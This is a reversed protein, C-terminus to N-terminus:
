RDSGAARGADCAPRVKNTRQWSAEGDSKAGERHVVKAGSWYLAHTAFTRTIQGLRAPPLVLGSGLAM